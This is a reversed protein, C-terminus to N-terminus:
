YGNTWNKIGVLRDLIIAAASRVSLHNYNTNGAVPELIYDAARITEETLGWATGFVLLYPKEDGMLGRLKEYSIGSPHKKACTVVMKPHSHENRHIHNAVEAITEKIEILELARRRAPNYRAGVGKTWHDIIQRALTIQDMLPTVVYFTKVGYTKAARSIDHLDLNTIASAIVEGRKNVVPYHILAVYLNPM